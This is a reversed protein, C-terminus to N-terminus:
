DRLSLSRGSKRCKLFNAVNQWPVVGLNYCNGYRSRGGLGMKTPLRTTYGCKRCNTGPLLRYIDLVRPPEKEAFSPTITDREQWTQNVMTVVETIVSIAEDRDEVPAASIEFPRFAYRREGNRWILVRAKHNYQCSDRICMESGM